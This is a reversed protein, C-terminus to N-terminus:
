TGSSATPPAPRPCASRARRQAAELGYANDAIEAVTLGRDRTAAFLEAVQKEIEGPGRSM